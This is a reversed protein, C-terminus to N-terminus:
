TLGRLGQQQVHWEGLPKNKLTFYQHAGRPCTMFVGGVDYKTFFASLRSLPLWLGPCLEAPCIESCCTYSIAFTLCCSWGNLDSSATQLDTMPVQWLMPICTLLGSGSAATEYLHSCYLLHTPRECLRGLKLRESFIFSMYMLFPPLSM